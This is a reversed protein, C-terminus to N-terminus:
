RKRTLYIVACGVAILLWMYGLVLQPTYILGAYSVLSWGMGFAVLGLEPLKTAVMLVLAVVIFIAFFAGDLGYNTTTVGFSGQRIAYSIGNINVSLQYQYATNNTNPVNNCALAGNSATLNNNCVTKSNTFVRLSFAYTKGSKSNMACNVNEFNGAIAAQACAANIDSFQTAPLNSSFNGVVIVVLCSATSCPAATVLPATALLLKGNPTFAQLQYTKTNNLFTYAGSQSSAALENVLIGNNTNINYLLVKVLAPMYALTSANQVVVQYSLPDSQEEIYFVEDIIGSSVAVRQLVGRSLLSNSSYQLTANAAFHAWAPYMCTSYTNSTAAPTFGADTGSIVPSTYGNNVVNFFGSLLVNAIWNLAPNAASKFNFQLANTGYTICNGLTENNLTFVASVNRFVNAGLFSLKVISNATIAVPTSTTPLALGYQSSNFSHLITQYHYASLVSETAQQSGVQLYGTVAASNLATALNIVTNATVNDGLLANSDGYPLGIGLAPFYNQYDTQTNSQINNFALTGYFNTAIQLAVNATTAVGNTPILMINHYLSFLDSSPAVIPLTQTNQLVNNIYLQATATTAAKTINIDYQYLQNSTEYVDAIVSASGFVFPVDNDTWAISNASYNATAMTNAVWNNNQNNWPQNSNLYNGTAVPVNNLVLNGATVQNNYSALSCVVNTTDFLSTDAQGNAIARGNRACTIPVAGAAVAFGNYASALGDSADIGNFNYTGVANIPMGYSCTTTGTCSAAAFGQEWVQCTSGAYCTATATGTAPYAVSDPSFTIIPLPITTTSTTTTSTTTTTPAGYTMRANFVNDLVSSAGVVPTPWSVFSNGKYYLMNYNANSDVYFTTAGNDINEGIWYCTGVVISVTQPVAVDKWGTGSCATPVTNGLWATPANTVISNTYISLAYNGTCSAFNMGLTTLTGSDSACVLYWQNYNAGALNAAGGATGGITDTTAAQVTGAAALLLLLLLLFRIPSIKM